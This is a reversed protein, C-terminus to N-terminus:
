GVKMNLMINQILPNLENVLQCLNLGRKLKYEGDTVHYGCNYACITLSDANLHEGGKPV